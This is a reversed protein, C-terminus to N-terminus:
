AKVSVYEHFLTNKQMAGPEVRMLGTQSQFDYEIYGYDLRRRLSYYRYLRTLTIITM